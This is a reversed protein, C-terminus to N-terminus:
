HLHCLRYFPAWHISNPALPVSPFDGNGLISSSADAHKPDGRSTSCGDGAISCYCHHLCHSRDLGAAWDVQIGQHSSLLAGHPLGATLLLVKLLALRLECAHTCVGCIAITFSVQMSRLNQHSHCDAMRILTVTMVMRSSLVEPM